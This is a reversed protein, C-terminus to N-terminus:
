SKKSNHAFYWLKSTRVEMNRKEDSMSKPYNLVWSRILQDSYLKEVEKENHMSYNHALVNRLKRLSKLSAVFNIRSRSGKGFRLKEMIELKQFLSMRELILEHFEIRCNQNVFYETLIGDLRDEFIACLRIVRGALDDSNIKKKFEKKSM